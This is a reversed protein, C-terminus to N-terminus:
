PCGTVFRTQFCGFDAVSLQGDSNCDAYPDGAVFKTQFCGFDSVTLQGDANCDPYCSEPTVLFGRQKGQYLGWGVIWGDSNIGSAHSLVWGSGPPIRSNLDHMQAGHAVFAHVLGDSTWSEGVVAGTDNVARAASAPGGLTGLDQLGAAGPARVFAHPRGVGVDAQGAIYGTESIDFAEGSPGGLTGLDVMAGGSPLLFPRHNGGADAGFGVVDGSNNVAWACAPSGTGAFGHVLTQRPPDGVDDTKSLLSVFGVRQNNPLFMSGVGTIFPATDAIDYVVADDSPSIAAIYQQPYPDPVPLWSFYAQRTFFFNVNAGAGAYFGGETVTLVSVQHQVDWFRPFVGVSGGQPVVLQEVIGNRWVFGLTRRGSEVVSSGVVRGDDTLDTAWGMVIDPGLDVATVSYNQGSAAAPLVVSLLAIRYM